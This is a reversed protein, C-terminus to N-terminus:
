LLVMFVQIKRQAHHNINGGPHHLAFKLQHNGILQQQSNLWLQNTIQKSQQRSIAHKEFNSNPHGHLTKLHM